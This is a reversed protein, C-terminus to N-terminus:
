WGEGMLAPNFLLGGMCYFMFNSLDCEFIQM